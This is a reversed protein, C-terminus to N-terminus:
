EYKLSELKSKLENIKEEIAFCELGADMNAKHAKEFKRIQERLEKKEANIKEREAKLIAKAEESLKRIEERKKEEGAILAELKAKADDTPLGCAENMAIAKKLNRVAQSEGSRARGEGSLNYSKKVTVGVVKDIQEVSWGKDPSLIVDGEPTTITGWFRACRTTGDQCAKTYRTLEVKFGNVENVGGVSYKTTAM